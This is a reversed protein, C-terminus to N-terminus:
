NLKGSVVPAYRLRLTNGGHIRGLIDGCPQVLLRGVDAHGAGLRGHTIEQHVLHNGIEASVAPRIRCEPVVHELADFVLVASLLRLPDDLAQDGGDLFQDCAEHHDGLAIAEGLELGFPHHRLADCRLLQLGDLGRDLFGVCVKDCGLAGVLGGPVLTADRRRPCGRARLTRLTVILQSLQLSCLLTRRAHRVFGFRDPPLSTFSDSITLIIETQLFALAGLFRRRTQVAIFLQANCTVRLFVSEGDLFDFTLHPRDLIIVRCRFAPRLGYEILDRLFAVVQIRADLEFLDGVTEVQRRVPGAFLRGIGM